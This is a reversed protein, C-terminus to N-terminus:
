GEKVFQPELLSPLSLCSRSKVNKYQQWVVPGIRCVLNKVDQAYFVNCESAIFGQLPISSGKPTYVNQKKSNKKKELHDSKKEPLTALNFSNRYGKKLSWCGYIHYTKM